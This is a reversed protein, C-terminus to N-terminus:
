SQAQKSQAQQPKPLVFIPAAHVGDQGPIPVKMLRQAKYKISFMSPVADNLREPSGNFAEHVMVLLERYSRAFEIAAEYLESDQCYESLKANTKIPYVEQFNVALKPGSPEKDEPKKNRNEENNDAPVFYRGKKLQQFRYYHALENEHDFIM